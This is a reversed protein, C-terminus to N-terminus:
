DERGETAAAIEIVVDKGETPDKPALLLEREQGLEEARASAAAGESRLYEAMEPDREERAMLRAEDAQGLAKQHAQHVRVVDQLDSHEKGLARLRAPDAAVEPRSLERTLEEYRQEIEHLRDQM